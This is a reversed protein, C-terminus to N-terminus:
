QVSPMDSPALMGPNVVVPPPGEVYGQAATLPPADKRAAALVTAFPDPGGDKGATIVGNNCGRAGSNLALLQPFAQGYRALILRYADLRNMKRATVALGTAAPENPAWVMSRGFWLAADRTLSAEYLRWGMAQGGLASKEVEVEAKFRMLRELEPQTLARQPGCYVLPKDLAQGYVSGNSGELRKEVPVQQETARESQLRVVDADHGHATISTSVIDIYMKRFKDNKDRWEYALAEAEDFKFAEREALALGEASNENPDAAYALRMWALANPRDKVKRYYWGILLEDKGNKGAKVATEFATLRATDAVEKSTGGAYTGLTARIPSWRLEAFESVGAPTKKGLAVLADIKEQDTLVELAKLATALRNKDLNCTTLLFKYVSLAKDEDGSRGFGEGIRWALDLENCAVMGEQSTALQAVQAWDKATSADLIAKRVKAHAFKDLFDRTPTWDPHALKLEAIKAEVGSFDEKKYFDWLPQEDVKPREDAYLDDPPTWGPHDAKIRRIEAAVRGQDHSHAYYRLATLDPAKDDPNFTAAQSSAPATSKFDDAYAVALTLPALACALLVRKLSM